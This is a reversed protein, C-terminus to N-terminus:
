VNESDGLSTCHKFARLMEVSLKQRLAVNALELLDVVVAGALNNDLEVAADVLGTDDVGAVVDTEGVELLPNDLEERSTLEAVNDQGGRGADHVVLLSTPLV